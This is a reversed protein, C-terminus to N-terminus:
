YFIDQFISNDSTNGCGGAVRKSDRMGTAASLGNWFFLCLFGEGAALQQPIQLCEYQNPQGLISACGKNNLFHKHM